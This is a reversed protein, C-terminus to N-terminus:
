RVATPFRYRNNKGHRIVTASITNRKEPTVTVVGFNDAADYACIDNEYTANAAITVQQPPLVENRDNRLMGITATTPSNQKNVLLLRCGQNLFTNYSGKLVSGLPQTAHIGYLYGIGLTQNRGYQMVTAMLSGDKAATVKISGLSTPLVPDIVVHVSAHAALNGSVSYQASGQMDYVQLTYGGSISTPNSIEVVATGERTDVAAVLPQSSGRIGELQFASDFSNNMSPNDYLYRVNRLEFKATMSVPRWEVLGVLNAGFQQGAVDQRTKARLVLSQTALVSGDQAYFILQGRETSSSLNTVSIWNAVMNQADTPDLSPQYTNFPVFLSGSFGNNFPMAFAFEIENNVSRYHVMRGDYEGRKGRVVSELLGYSNPTFGSLGHVLLDVEAGPLVNFKMKSDVLREGANSFLQTNVELAANDKLNIYESVNWLDLFSNWGSYSTTDLQLLVSGADYPNTGDLLEQEDSVSDNDDDSDVDDAIGDGDFDPWLIKVLLTGSTQSRNIGDSAVATIRHSADSLKKVTVLYGSSSAIASGIEGDIDSYLIVNDGSTASGKFTPTADSTVNDSSSSGTDSTSVLDPTSPTIGGYFNSQARVATQEDLALRDRHDRQGPKWTTPVSVNTGVLSAFLSSVNGQTETVTFENNAVNSRVDIYRRQPPRTVFDPYTANKGYEYYTLGSISNTPGYLPLGPIPPMSRMTQFAISDHHLPNQPSRSGLGTVWVIGLPNGGLIYDASLSLSNIYDQKEAASATGLQMKSYTGMVYEGLAVSKGWDNAWGVEKGSRHAFNNEINVQEKNADLTFQADAKALAAKRKSDNSNSLLYGLVHDALLPQGSTLSFASNWYERQRIAPIGKNYVDFQNWGTEFDNKYSALGTLRYLESAAYMYPGGISATVGHSISYNYAAIAATKLQAAKTASYPAVLRSAQAFLGAVRLTHVPERSYTWYPMTDQDAFHNGSPHKFSEAGSRVGGDSEQLQQWAALSWLAEDLFDPIGNGSEPINLQNDKLASNNLEFARLLQRAVTTHFVRLDFDGADHHGGVLAREGTLPTNQPYFGQELKEATYVTPHDAERDCWDTYACDLDRGWRNLFLGRTTVYYAKLTALESVMTRYSVGVGPIRVRYYSTDNKAVSALDIQKVQTGAVTDLAARLTIPISSVVAKRPDLPNASEVLVSAASPFNALDLPGGDGMWGSVYAYRKTARPNFGVQNLQMVPTELYLDSYLLTIELNNPGTIELIEEQGISRNLKLYIYHEVDMLNDNFQGVAKKTENYPSDYLNGVPISDRYKANVVFPSSSSAVINWTGNQWSPGTYDVLQNVGKDLSDGGLAYSKVYEDRIVLTLVNPAYLYVAQLASRAKGSSALLTDLTVGQGGTTRAYFDYFKATGFAEVRIFTDVNPALKRLTYKQSSSVVSGVLKRKSSLNLNEPKAAIYIRYATAGQTQPWEISVTSSTVASVGPRSQAVANSTDLTVLIAVVAFVSNLLLRQLQGEDLFVVKM